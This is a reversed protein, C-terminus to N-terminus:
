KKIVKMYKFDLEKEYGPLDLYINTNAEVFLGWSKLINGYSEPSNISAMLKTKDGIAEIIFPQSYVRDNIKITPGTCIVKTVNFIVRQGNVAIAEAGALQLERIMIILDLDHVMADNPNDYDQALKADSVIVTVGQGYVPSIGSVNKYKEIENTLIQNIATESNTSIKLDILKSELEEKILKLRTLESTKISIENNIDEIKLFPVYKLGLSASKWLLVIFFGLLM